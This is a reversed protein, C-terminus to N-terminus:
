DEILPLIYEPSSGDHTQGERCPAGHAGELDGTCRGSISSMAGAASGKWTMSTGGETPEDDDPCFM